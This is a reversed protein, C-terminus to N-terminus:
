DVVLAARRKIGLGARNSAQAVELSLAAVGAGFDAIQDAVSYTVAPGSAEFRRTTLGADLVNVEYAEVDENLPPELGEWGDGGWRARRVWSIRVDGGPLKRARIHGVSWSRLARGGVVAEFTPM